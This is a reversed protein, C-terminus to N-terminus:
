PHKFDAPPLSSDTERRETHFPLYLTPQAAELDSATLAGGSLYDLVPPTKNIRCRARMCATPM